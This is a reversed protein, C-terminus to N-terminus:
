VERLNPLNGRVQAIKAAQEDDEVVVAVADSNAAVYECEEPSNTPYIPVVTAGASTLAFDAYTWEPRTSALICVRERAEIGLDILGLAIETVIQGVEGFTVDRWEGDVKHKIAVKDAFLEAARPLLDAITRSQTTQRTTGAM